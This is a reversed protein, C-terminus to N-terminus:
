GVAYLPTSEHRPAVEIPLHGLDEQMLIAQVAAKAVEPANNEESLHALVVRTTRNGIVEALTEGAAENSLHGKDGLIRRKLHWPYAGARLMGVDHNSELIYADADAIAGRLRDGVFGLDTALVLKTGGHHFCFMVPERADHSVAVPEAAVGGFYVVKGATLTFCRESGVEASLDGLETWTGGTAWIPVAHRRAFVRLGHVHDRHEHTVVVATLQDPNVGHQQLSRDLRRASIGADILLRVDDALVLVANGSSGSALVSFSFM